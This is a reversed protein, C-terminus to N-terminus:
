IPVSAPARRRPFAREIASAYQLLRAESWARGLLEMGIPIGGASFGAPLSIAPLGSKASLRCNSGEQEFVGIRVPLRRITPYILADLGEERLLAHLYRRLAASRKLEERYTAGARDETAESVRLREEICAHYGGARIIEALSRAPAEPFGSLYDGIDWKFDQALVLLGALPGGVLQDLEPRSLEVVEAGLTACGSAARRVVEAVEEDDSGRSMAEALVGFRVGRLHSSALGEVYSPPVRGRSAGTQADRPDFGVTADLVTALDEVSRAIPGGIDQTHSLPVLGFRSLLGQTGRLGVLNNHGAPIRISGCTDSGMGVAAFNAAVAAATGGSSGGPNVDLDYPNRTQGFLSGMTTIGYAFEHMQTKAFVIAGADRLKSVLTADRGTCFDALLASGATTSLDLTEYNDKVVVPIGHLPGRVKGAAREADREAAVRAADPSIARIANLAPGTQDYAAIRERYFDLLAVSTTQGSDIALQLEAISKEFPSFRPM